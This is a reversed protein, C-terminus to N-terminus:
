FIFLNILDYGSDLSFDEIDISTNKIIHDDNFLTQLDSTGKVLIEKYITKYNNRAKELGEDTIFKIKM